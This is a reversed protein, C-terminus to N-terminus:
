DPDHQPWEPVFDLFAPDTRLFFKQWHLLGERYLRSEEEGHERTWGMAFVRVKWEPTLELQKSMIRLQHVCEEPIFGILSEPSVTRAAQGAQITAETLTIRGAEYHRNLSRPDMDQNGNM